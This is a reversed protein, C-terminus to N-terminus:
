RCAYPNRRSYLRHYASPISSYTTNFWKKGTMGTFVPIGMGHFEVRAMGGACDSRLLLNGIETESRGWGTMGTFVPIGMGHFEVRAKGSASDSRLLLNGIETESRRSHRFPSSSRRSHRFPSSSRRFHRFLSTSRPSHYFHIM